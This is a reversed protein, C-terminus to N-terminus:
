CRGAGRVVGDIVGKVDRQMRPVSYRDRARAEAVAVLRETRDRHDLVDHIAQALASADATPVLTGAKGEDLAACSGGNATAIVPAKLHMAELLTLAFPEPSVSPHVVADVAQMLPAVDSRQGLFRVRGALDLQDVLEHLSAEYAQEDFLSSGAFICRVDPIQALARLVIHQGKWPAIRSFVGILHGDPLGLASRLQTRNRVDPTVDVGNAVVHGLDSRGGAAIFADIVAQSPGIVAHCFRNALGVQLRRHREGFHEPTIIDHLHWILPKRTAAAALAGLVFAKQSNAYIVDHRRASAILEAVILSMKGALPLAKAPSAVRTLASLGGGTRSATVKTGFAALRENLAGTEFLFASSAQHGEILDILVKEAGSITSTHNVFLVKPSGTM